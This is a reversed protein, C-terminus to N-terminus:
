DRYTIELIDMGRGPVSTAVTFETIPAPYGAPKTLIDVHAIPRRCHLIPMIYYYAENEILFRDKHDAMEIQTVHCYGSDETTTAIGGSSSMWQPCGTTLFPYDCAKALWQACAEIFGDAVPHYRMPHRWSEFLEPLANMRVPRATDVRFVATHVNKDDEMWCAVQKWPCASLFRCAAAPVFDPLTGVYVVSGRDYSRVRMLEEPPLLAPNPVLIPGTVDDLSEMPAIKHLPAGKAMLEAMWKATIWGRDSVLADVEAMMRANSWIVTYGPVGCIQPTYGNDWAMRVDRWEHADLGDGL